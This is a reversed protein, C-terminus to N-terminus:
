DGVMNPLKLFSLNTNVRPIKSVVVEISRNGRGEAIEGLESSQVEGVGGSANKILTLYEYKRGCLRNLLVCSQPERGTVSDLTVSRM